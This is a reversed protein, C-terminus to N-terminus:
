ELSFRGSQISEILVTVQQEANAYNATEWVGTEGSAELRNISYAIDVLGSVVSKVELRVAAGDPVDLVVLGSGIESVNLTLNAQEGVILRLTGSSVSVDDLTVQANAPIEAEIQGSILSWSGTLPNNAPLTLTSTGSQARLNLATLKLDAADLTLTGTAATLTLALPVDPSLQITWDLPESGTYNQASAKEALTITRTRDGSVTYDLDNVHEVEAEMLGDAGAGVSANEFALNVTVEAASVGDIPENLQTVRAKGEPPRTAEVQPETTAASSCAVLVWLLLIYRM